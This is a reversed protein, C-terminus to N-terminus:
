SNISAETIKETSTGSRPSWKPTMVDTNCHCFDKSCLIPQTPLQLNEDFIHGLIGGVQCGARWVDGKFDIFLQDLGIRCTWGRFRALDRNVYLTADLEEKSGDTYVVSSRLLSKALRTNPEHGLTNVFVASHHNFYDEQWDAYQALFPAETGFGELIRVPELSYWHKGPSAKLKEIFRVSRNWLELNPPMMVRVGMHCQGSMGTINRIVIDDREAEPHYSISVVDFMHACKEFFEPRRTANTTLAIHVGREYLYECLKFFDPWIAPEGGTFSFLYEKGMPDYHKFIRDLFRVVGDYDLWQSSGEYNAPHCYSCKQNCQNHLMWM